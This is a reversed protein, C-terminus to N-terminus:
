IVDSAPVDGGQDVLPIAVDDVEENPRRCALGIRGLGTLRCRTFAEVQDVPGLSTQIEPDYRVEIRDFELLEPLVERRRSRASGEVARHTPAAIMPRSAMGQGM